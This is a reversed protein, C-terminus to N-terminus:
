GKALSTQQASRFAEIILHLAIAILSIWEAYLLSIMKFPPLASVLAVITALGLAISICRNQKKHLFLIVIVNGVFFLISFIYHLLYRDHEPNLIVGILSLGLVLNYWKGGSHINLEHECRFYVAGNFIFLMAAMCYLMGFIYSNSSYVYESMSTRFCFRDKCIRSTTKPDYGCDNGAILLSQAAEPKNPYFEDKDSLNFFLPMFMCIAAILVQIARFVLLEDRHFHDSHYKTHLM